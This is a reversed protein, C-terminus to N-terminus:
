IEEEGCYRAATGPRVEQHQAIDKWLWASPNPTRELGPRKVHVLGCRRACGHHWEFGDLFPSYFLGQIKLSPEERRALTLLRGAHDCLFRCRERDDDAAFGLGTVAIPKQFASLLLLVEELGDSSPQLEDFDVARGDQDVPLSFGYRFRGAAFRTRLVGQYSLAIFDAGDSGSARFVAEPFARNLREQEKEALRMDWPSHEDWPEVPIGRVSLGIVAQSISERIAEAARVHAEALTNRLVAEHRVGLGSGPWKKERCLRTVLCEAEQVPIWHLCWEGLMRVTERTYAEFHDPCEPAQWGGRDAIWRPLVTHYLVGLVTMDLSSALQFVQRYHELAEADFCDPAPQIRAWNVGICVANMGLKHALALDDRFHLWHGSGPNQDSGDLIHGPRLAWRYWDSGDDGGECQHAGISVGFLFDSPFPKMPRWKAM